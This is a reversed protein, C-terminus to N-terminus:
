RLKLNIKNINIIIVKYIFLYYSTFLLLRESNKCLEINMLDIITVLHKPKEKRSRPLESIRNM